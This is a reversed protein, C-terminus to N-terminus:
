YPHCLWRQPNKVLSWDVEWDGIRSPTDVIASGTILILGILYETEVIMKAM